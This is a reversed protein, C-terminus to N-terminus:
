EPASPMPPLIPRSCSQVYVTTWTLSNMPPSLTTWSRYRLRTAGANESTEDARRGHRRLCLLVPTLESRVAECPQAERPRSPRGLLRPHTALRACQLGPIVDTSPLQGTCIISELIASCSSRTAKEIGDGDRGPSPHKYNHRPTV